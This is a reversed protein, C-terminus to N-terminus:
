YVKLVSLNPKVMDLDAVTSALKHFKHLGQPFVNNPIYAFSQGQLLRSTKKPVGAMSEMLLTTM